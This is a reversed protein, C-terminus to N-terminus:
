STNGSVLSLLLKMIELSAYIAAYDISNNSNLNQINQRQSNKNNKHM